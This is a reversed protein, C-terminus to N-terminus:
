QPTKENVIEFIMSRVRFRILRDIKVGFINLMSFVEPANRYITGLNKLINSILIITLLYDINTTQNYATFLIFYSYQLLLLTKDLKILNADQVLTLTNKLVTKLYKICNEASPSEEFETKIEEKICATNLHLTISVIEGNSYRERIDIRGHKKKTSALIKFSKLGIEECLASLIDFNIEILDRIQPDFIQTDFTFLQEPNETPSIANTLEPQKSPADKHLAVKEEPM